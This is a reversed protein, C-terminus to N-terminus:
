QEFIDLHPPCIFILDTSKIDSLNFCLEFNYLYCRMDNAKAKQMFEIATQPLEKSEGWESIDFANISPFDKSKCVYIYPLKNDNM